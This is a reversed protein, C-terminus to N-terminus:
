KTKVSTPVLPNNTYKQLHHIHPQFIDTQQHNHRQQTDSSILCVPQLLQVEGHALLHVIVDTLRHTNGVELFDKQSELANLVFSRM